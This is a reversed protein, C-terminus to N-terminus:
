IPIIIYKLKLIGDSFAKEYEDNTDFIIIKPSINTIDTEGKKLRKKLGQIISVLTCTKGSGTNGFIGLHKGFLIDPNAYVINDDNFVSIGISLEYKYKSRLVKSKLKNNVSYVESGIIPFLNIGRQFSEEYDDYVGILVAEVIYNKQKNIFIDENYSSKKDNIQNIRAIAKKGNPLYCYLLGNITVLFDRYISDIILKDILNQETVEVTIHGEQIKVIRGIKYDDYNM